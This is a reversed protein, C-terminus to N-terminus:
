KHREFREFDGEAVQVKIGVVAHQRLFALHASVEREVEPEGDFFGFGGDVFIVEFAGDTIGVDVGHRLFFHVGGRLEEFVHCAADETPEEVGVRSQDFGSAFQAFVIWGGARFAVTTGDGEGSVASVRRAAIWVRILAGSVECM